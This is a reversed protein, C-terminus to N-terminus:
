AKDMSIITKALKKVFRNILLVHAYKTSDSKGNWTFSVM